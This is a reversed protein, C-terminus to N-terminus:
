GRLWNIQGPDCRTVGRLPGYGAPNTGLFETFYVAWFYAEQSADTYEAPWIRVRYGFRCDDTPQGFRVKRSEVARFVVALRTDPYAGELLVEEIEIGDGDRWLDRNAASEEVGARFAEEYESAPVDLDENWVKDPDSRM